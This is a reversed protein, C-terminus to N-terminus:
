VPVVGNRKWPREVRKGEALELARCITPRTERPDIVDDVMDHGAAIYVDIISRFQEILERRKAAPDEAEQVQKRFIIEVAGEPGM